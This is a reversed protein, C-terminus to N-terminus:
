TEPLAGCSVTIFPYEKRLSANHIARALLEKGTGSEGQILVTINSPAINEILAYIDQMKSSKGILSEFRHLEHLQEKLLINERILSQHNIIKKVVMDIEEPSFPKVVYDYAGEKMANVATEVTGYATMIIVEINHHERKVYRLLELGDIGPMKLDTIIINFSGDSIKEIAEEGSSAGYVHYNESEFWELLSSKMTQDDDVIMIKSKYEM